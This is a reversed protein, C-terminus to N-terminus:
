RWFRVSESLEQTTCGPRRNNALMSLQSLSIIIEFTKFPRHPLWCLPKSLPTTSIFDPFATGVGMAGM